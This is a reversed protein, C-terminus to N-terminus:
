AHLSASSACATSRARSTGSSVSMAPAAANAPRTSSGSHAVNTKQRENCEPRGSHAVMQRVPLRKLDDLALTLKREVNGSVSVVTTVYRAPDVAQALAAYATVAVLVGPVFRWLLNM